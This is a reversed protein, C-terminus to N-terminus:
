SLVVSYRTKQSHRMYVAKDVCNGLDCHSALKALAASSTSLALSSAAPSLVNPALSCSEGM